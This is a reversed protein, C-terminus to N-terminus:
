QQQALVILYWHTAFSLIQKIISSQRCLNGVPSWFIGNLGKGKGGSLASAPYPIYAQGTAPAYAMNVRIGVVGFVPRSFLQHGINLGRCALLCRILSHHAFYLKFGPVPGLKPM